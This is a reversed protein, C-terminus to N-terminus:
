GLTWGREAKSLEAVANRQRDSRRRGTEGNFSQNVQLDFSEARHDQRVHIHFRRLTQTSSCRPRKQRTRPASSCGCWLWFLGLFFGFEEVSRMASGHSNLGRSGGRCFRNRDNPRRIQGSEIRMCQGMIRDHIRGPIVPGQM